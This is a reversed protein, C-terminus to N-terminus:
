AKAPPGRFGTAVIFFEASEARSAPPKIRRMAAFRRRIDDVLAKEGSGQRAKAIFSGGPRLVESAFLLAAEVLNMVRLHDIDPHGTSSSAMDSLVIDVPGDLARKVAASAAPSLFDLKLIEAGPVALMGAIDVAIVKGRGEDAKTRAVAVQTWGGPAAGLDVVRQGPKLLRLKDDIEILKFAARSRYGQRKAEAVFPDNLQRGLWLTSSLKRGKATRVRRSLQRGSSGKERKENVGRREAGRRRPRSGGRADPRAPHGRAPGPRRRALARGAM